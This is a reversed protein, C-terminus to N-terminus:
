PRVARNRQLVDEVAKSVCAEPHNIPSCVFPVASNQQLIRSWGRQAPVSCSKVLQQPWFANPQCSKAPLMVNPQCCKPAEVASSSPLFPRRLRQSPPVRGPKKKPQEVAAPARRASTSGERLPKTGESPAKAPVNGDCRDDVPFGPLRRSKGSLLAQVRTCAAVAWMRGEHPEVKHFRRADFSVPMDHRDIWSGWLQQTNRKAVRLEPSTGHDDEVWIRGGTFLVWSRYRPEAQWDHEPHRSAPWHSPQAGSRHFDLDWRSLPKASLSQSGRLRSPQRFGKLPLSRQRWLRLTRSHLVARVVRLRYGAPPRSAEVRAVVAGAPSGRQRRVPIADSSRM